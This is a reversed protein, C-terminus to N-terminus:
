KTPAELKALLDDAMEIAEDFTAYRVTEHGHIDTFGHETNAFRLAATFRQQRLQLAEKIEFDSM